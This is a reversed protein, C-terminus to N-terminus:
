FGPGQVNSFASSTISADFPLPSSSLRPTVPQFLETEAQPTSHPLFMGSRRLIGHYLSCRENLGLTPTSSLFHFAAKADHLRIYYSSMPHGTECSEIMDAVVVNSLAEADSGFITAASITSFEAISM